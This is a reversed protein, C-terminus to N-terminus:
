FKYMESFGLEHAYQTFVEPNSEIPIWKKEKQVSEM